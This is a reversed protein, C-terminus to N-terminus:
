FYPMRACAHTRQSREFMTNNAQVAHSFFIRISTTHHPTSHCPTACHPTACHPAVHWINQTTLTETSYCLAVMCRRVIIVPNPNDPLAAHQWPAFLRIVTGRVLAVGHKPFFVDTISSPPRAPFDAPHHTLSARVVRLGCSEEVSIIGFLLEEQQQQQQQHNGGSASVM